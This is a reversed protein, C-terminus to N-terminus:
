ARKREQALEEQSNLEQLKAELIWLQQYGMIRRMRKEMSLLAAATWRLAMQADRWRTVRGTRQRIGANPSEIINTPGLCRCLTGPLDLRNITFMETLGELLSTAGSPYEHELWQALKKLKAIGRDAPLQFAAKMASRVDPQRDKPLYDLVNRIKHNRCRQIPNKDGFVEDIAARLAKSGDIVFLRRRQPDLGRTVLNTLLDKVVTANESSGERLGLVHKHGETDVGLAVIVHIAGFRIGDLYVIM